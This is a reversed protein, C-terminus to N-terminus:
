LCEIFVCLGNKEEENKRGKQVSLSMVVLTLTYLSKWQIKQEGKTHTLCTFHFVRNEVEQKQIKRKERAKGVDM